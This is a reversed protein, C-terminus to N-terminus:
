GPQDKPPIKVHIALTDGTTKEFQLIKGITRSDLTHLASLMMLGNPAVLDRSLVMGAMLADSATLIEFPDPTEGDGDAHGKELSTDGSLLALFADVVWPDYRTGRSGAIIARAGAPTLKRPALVGIQLNDFDSCVSLIRAGVLIARGKLQNPFGAGDFRELQAGISAAAGRLDQLPMLLQEGRAAFQRYEALMRPGMSAVPTALLEDPFALKGLDHLLAAIFVEQVLAPELGLKTALRRAQDAVRRSHGVLIEHRSEILISFVKLSVVFNNKLRENVATLEEQNANVNQQLSANLAKLEEARTLALAALRSDEQAQSRRQLAEGIAQVLEDDNWPKTIYRSIAGQNVAEIVSAIDSEGTLLFRIAQPWRERVQLLFQGGDMEPMRMDSIVVDVAGAQMISMGAAGSDAVQVQYGAGRLLRRLSSLVNPEDDVCLITAAAPTSPNDDDAINTM